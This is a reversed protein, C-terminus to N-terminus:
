KPHLGYLETALLDITQRLEPKDLCNMSYMFDNEHIMIVPKLKLQKRKWFWKGSKVYNKESISLVYTIKKIKQDEAEINAGGMVHYRKDELKHFQRQLKREAKDTIQLPRVGKVTDIILYEGSLSVGVGYKQGLIECSEKFRDSIAFGRAKIIKHAKEFPTSDNIENQNLLFEALENISESNLKRIEDGIWSM